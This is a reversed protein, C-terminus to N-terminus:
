CGIVVAHLSSEKLSDLFSTCFSFVVIIVFFKAL